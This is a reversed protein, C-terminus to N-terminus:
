QVFSNRARVSYSASYICPCSRTPVVIRYEGKAEVRTGLQQEFTGTQATVAAWTLKLKEEPLADRM